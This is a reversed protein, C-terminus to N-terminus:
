VKNGICLLVVADTGTGTITATTTTATARCFQNATTDNCWCAPTGSGFAAGTGSFTLPTGVAGVFVQILQQATSTTIQPVSKGGNTIAGTIALTGSFTAAGAADTFTPGVFGNPSLVGGDASIKGSVYESSFAAPSTGDQMSSGGDEYWSATVATGSQFYVPCSLIHRPPIAGAPPSFLQVYGGVLSAAVLGFRVFDPLELWFQWLLRTMKRLLKM